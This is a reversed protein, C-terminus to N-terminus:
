RRRTCAKPARAVRWAPPRTARPATSPKAADVADVTGSAKTAGAHGEHVLHRLGGARLPVPGPSAQVGCSIISFALITLRALTSMTTENTPITQDLFPHRRNNRRKSRP